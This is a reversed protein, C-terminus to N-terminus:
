PHSAHALHMTGPAAAALHTHSQAGDQISSRWTKAAQCLRRGQVAARDVSREEARGLQTLSSVSANWRTRCASCTSLKLQRAPITAEDELRGCALRLRCRRTHLWCLALRAPEMAQRVPIMVRVRHAGVGHPASNSPQREGCLHAAINGETQCWSLQTCADICGYRLQSTALPATMYLRTQQRLPLQGHLTNAALLM